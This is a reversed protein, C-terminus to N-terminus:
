TTSRMPGDDAGETLTNDDYALRFKPTDEASYGDRWTSLPTLFDPFTYGDQALAMTATGLSGMLIAAAVAYRKM